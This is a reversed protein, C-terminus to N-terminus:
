AIWTTPRFPEGRAARAETLLCVLEFALGAALCASMGTPDYTPSLEVLDAGVVDVGRLGLLLERAEWGSLGFPEPLTTGPMESVDIADTDFSVYVPGTGVKERAEAVVDAM